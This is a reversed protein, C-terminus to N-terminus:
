SRHVLSRRFVRSRPTYGTLSVTSNPETQYAGDTPNGSFNSVRTNAARRRFVRKDFSAKAEEKTLDRNLFLVTNRVGDDDVNRLLRAARHITAVQLETDLTVQLLRPRRGPQINTGGDIYRGLRMRKTCGPEVVV